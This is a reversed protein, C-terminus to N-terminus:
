GAAFCASRKWAPCRTACPRPPAWSSMQLPFSILLVVYGVM